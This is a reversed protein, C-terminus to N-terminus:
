MIRACKASRIPQPISRRKISLYGLDVLVRRVARRHYAALLNDTLVHGATSADTRLEQECQVVAALFTNREAAGLTPRAAFCSAATGRAWGHPYHDENAWMLAAYLDDCAWDIFRGFRAAILETRRKMGGIGAECSGNFRPMRVPSFLPAIQRDTLWNDMLQSTFASGNDSKMVLPPGHEAVLAELVPLAKAATADAVPTWALQMGSALDRIALIQSFCGDIPRPPQSHDIAWVSGLCLWRLTEVVLRHEAQFQRRYDKLLYALICPPVDACCSRLTPLGLRPGTEELLTQVCVRETCTVERCPRGRLRPVLEGRVKRRKWSALTRSSVRLSLSASRCSSVQEEIFRVAAHRAQCEQERRPGQQAAHEGVRSTVPAVAAACPLLLAATV